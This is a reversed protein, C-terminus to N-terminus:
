SQITSFLCISPKELGVPELIRSGCVTRSGGELFPCCLTILWVMGAVSSDQVWLRGFGRM